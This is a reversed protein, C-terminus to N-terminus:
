PQKGEQILEPVVGDSDRIYVFLSGRRAGSPIPLPNGVHMCGASTLSPSGTHEAHQVTIIM